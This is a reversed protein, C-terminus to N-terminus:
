FHDVCFQWLGKDCDYDLFHAGKSETMEAIRHRYRAKSEEDTFDAAQPPLCGFLTITAPRNLGEGESPKNQSDPYLVVEGPELRVVKPLEELISRNSLLDIEGHFTVEGVKPRHVTLDRVQRLENPTMSYIDPTVVLDGLAPRSPVKAEDARQVNSVAGSARKSAAEALAAESYRLTLVEAVARCWEELALSKKRTRDLSKTVELSRRLKQYQLRSTNTANFSRLKEKFREPEEFAARAAAWSADRFGLLMLVSEIVGRVPPPRALASLELLEEDSVAEAYALLQSESSQPRAREQAPPGPRPAQAAQAAQAARGESGPLTRLPSEGKSVQSGPTETQLSAEGKAEVDASQMNVLESQACHDLAVGHGEEQQPTRLQVVEETVRTPIPSEKGSARGSPAAQKAVSSTPSPLGRGGNCFYRKWVSDRPSYESSDELESPRSKLPMAPASALHMTHPKQAQSRGQARSPMTNQRAAPVAVSAYVARGYVPVQFPVAPVVPPPMARPSAVLLRPSHVTVYGPSHGAHVQVPGQPSSSRSRAGWASESMARHSSVYRAQPQFHPPSLQRLPPSIARPWGSVGAASVVVVPQGPMHRM